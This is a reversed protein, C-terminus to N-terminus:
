YESEESDADMNDDDEDDNDSSDDGDDSDDELVKNYEVEEEDTEDTTDTEVDSYVDNMDIHVKDFTHRSRLDWTNEGLTVFRGDLSLNTYFQGMLRKAQFEDLQQVRTVEAWLETFSVAEPQSSIFDYAVDLNSKTM